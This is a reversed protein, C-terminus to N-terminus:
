VASLAGPVAPTDAASAVPEADPSTILGELVAAHVKDAKLEKRIQLLAGGLLPLWDTETLGPQHQLTRLAVHASIMQESGFQALLRDLSNLGDEIAASGAGTLRQQWCDVFLRYTAAKEERLPVALRDRGSQRVASAVLWAALLVVVSAIATVRAVQADLAAFAATIHELMLWAAFALAALLALATLTVILQNFTKM